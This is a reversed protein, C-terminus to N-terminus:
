DADPRIRFKLRTLIRIFDNWIRAAGFGFHIQFLVVYFFQHGILFINYILKKWGFFEGLFSYQRLICGLGSVLRPINLYFFINNKTVKHPGSVEGSTRAWV